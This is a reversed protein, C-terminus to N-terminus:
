ENHEDRWEHFDGVLGEGKITGITEITKVDDAHTAKDYAALIVSVPVPPDTKRAALAPAACVALVFLLPLARKIVPATSTTRVSSTRYTIKRRPMPPFMAM